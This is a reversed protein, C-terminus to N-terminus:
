LSISNVLSSNCCNVKQTLSFFDNSQLVSPRRAKGYPHEIYSLLSIDLQQESRECRRKDHWINRSLVKDVFVYDIM